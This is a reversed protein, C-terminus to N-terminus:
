RAGERPRDADVGEEHCPPPPARHGRPLRPRAESVETRAQTVTPEGPLRPPASRRRNAARRSRDAARAARHLAAVYARCTPCSAMPLAARRQPAASM